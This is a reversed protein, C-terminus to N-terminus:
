MTDKIPYVMVPSTALLDIDVCIFPWDASHGPVDTAAKMQRHFTQCQSSVNLLVTVPICVFCQSDDNNYNFGGEGKM